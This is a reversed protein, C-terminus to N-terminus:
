KPPAFLDCENVTTWVAYDSNVVIIASQGEHIVTNCNEKFKYYLFRDPTQMKETPLAAPSFASAEEM